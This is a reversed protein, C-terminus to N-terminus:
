AARLDTTKPDTLESLSKLTNDIQQEGAALDSRYQQMPTMAAPSRSAAPAATSTKKSPPPASVKESSSCGFAISMALAGLVMHRLTFTSMTLRRTFPNVTQKRPCKM